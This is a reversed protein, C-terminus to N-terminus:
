AGEGETVPALGSKEALRRAGLHARQKDTRCRRKYGLAGALIENM